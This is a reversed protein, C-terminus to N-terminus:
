SEEVPLEALRRSLLERHEKEETQLQRFLDRTTFDDVFQLAETYFEYARQEAEISVQIAERTSMCTHVQHYGPAEVDFIMKRRVRSPADQFLRWRRTSLQDGHIRENRAMSRFFDSAGEDRGTGVMRSLEELREGAEEEILIALDLADMLGLNAFDIDCTTHEDGARSMGLNSTSIRARQPIGKTRDEIEDTDM